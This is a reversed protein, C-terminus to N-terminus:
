IKGEKKLTKQVDVQVRKGSDSELYVKTREDFTMGEEVYLTFHPQVIIPQSAFLPSSSSSPSPKPSPSVYVGDAYGPINAGKFPDDQSSRANQIVQRIQSPNLVMEGEALCREFRTREALHEPYCEM